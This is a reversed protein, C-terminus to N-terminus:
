TTPNDKNTNANFYARFDFAQPFGPDILDNSILECTEGYQRFSTDMFEDITLRLIFQRPNEPNIYFLM